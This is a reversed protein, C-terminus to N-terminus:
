LRCGTPPAWSEDYFATPEPFIGAPVESIPMRAWRAFAGYRDTDVWFVESPAEFLSRLNVEGAEYRALHAPDCPLVIWRHFDDDRDRWALLFRKEGDSFESLLPGEFWEIDRVWTLTVPAEPLFDLPFLPERM